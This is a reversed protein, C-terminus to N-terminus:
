NRNQQSRQNPALFGAGRPRMLDYGTKGPGWILAPDQLDIDELNGCLTWILDQYDQTTEHPFENVYM